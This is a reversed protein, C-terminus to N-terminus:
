DLSVYDIWAEISGGCSEIFPQIQHQKDIIIGFACQSKIIVDCLDIELTIWQDKPLVAKVKSYHYLIEHGKVFDLDHTCLVVENIQKVEERLSGDPNQYLHVEFLPIGIV